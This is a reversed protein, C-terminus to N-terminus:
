QETKCQTTPSSRLVIVARKNNLDHCPVSCSRALCMYYTYNSIIMRLSKQNSDLSKGWFKIGRDESLIHQIEKNKDCWSWNRSNQNRTMPDCAILHDYNLVTYYWSFEALSTSYAIGCYGTDVYNIRLLIKCFLEAKQLPPIIAISIIM